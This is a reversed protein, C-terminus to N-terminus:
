KLGEAEEGKADVFDHAKARGNSPHIIQVVFEDASLTTDPGSAHSYPLHLNLFSEISEDNIETATSNPAMNNPGRSYCRKVRDISEDIFRDGIDLILMKGNRRLIIYPGAWKSVPRERFMVVEAGNMIGEDVAAPVNKSLALKILDTTVMRTMKDRFSKVVKTREVMTSLEKPFIPLRRVIGFVLLSSSLGNIGSTDNCSKM